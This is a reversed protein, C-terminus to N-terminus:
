VRRVSLREKAETLASGGQKRVPWRATDELASTGVPNLSSVAETCEGPSIVTALTDTEM